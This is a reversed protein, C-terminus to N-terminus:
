PNRGECFKGAGCTLGNCCNVGKDPDCAIGISGCWNPCDRPTPVLDCHRPCGSTIDDAAWACKYPDDPSSSNVCVMGTPCIEGNGCRLYCYGGPYKTGVGHQETCRLSGDSEVTCTSTFCVPPANGTDPRPCETDVCFPTCYGFGICSNPHGWSAYNFLGCMGEFGLNIDVPGGYPNSPAEGVAPVHYGSDHAVVPTGGNSTTETAADRAPAGGASSSDRSDVGRPGADRPEGLVCIGATCVLRGSDGCDTDSDCSPLCLGGPNVRCRTGASGPSVEVCASGRNLGVCENSAGCPLTCVGCQCTLPSSCDENRKCDRLWSSQGDSSNGGSDCHTLQLSVLGACFLFAFRNM